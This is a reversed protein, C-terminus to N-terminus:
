SPSPIPAHACRSAPTHPFQFRDPHRDPQRPRSCRDLCALIRVSQLQQLGDDVAVKVPHGAPQLAHPVENVNRLLEWSVVPTRRDVDLQDRQANRPREGATPARPYFCACMKHIWCHALPLLPCHACFFLPCLCRPRHGAYAVRACVRVLASTLRGYPSGDRGPASRGIRSSPGSDVPGRHGHDTAGRRGHSASERRQRSPRRRIAPKIDRHVRASTPHSRRQRQRAASSEHLGTPANALHNAHGHSAHRRTTRGVTSSPVPPM